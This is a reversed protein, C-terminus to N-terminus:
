TKDYLFSCVEETSGTAYLFFCKKYLKNSRSIFLIENGQTNRFVEEPTLEAYKPTLANLLRNEDIFPLIAVGQWTYRKGNLDLEFEEPYFDIIESDQKTMLEQFAAPIHTRSAAPLVSMLQEYPRLPAGMEFDIEMNETLFEGLDSAFPAYHFPFFWKWSPCGLYYYKM